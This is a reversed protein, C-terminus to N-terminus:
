NRQAAVIHLDVFEAHNLVYDIPNRTLLRAIFNGPPVPQGAVLQSVQLEEATRVITLGVHNKLPPRKILRAGFQECLKEIRELDRSEQDSLTDGFLVVLVYLEANLRDAIRWGRRILKESHPRYNVCVLIREREQPNRHASRDEAMRQDVDDAVELLALERLAALNATEFFHDLAWQIKDTSYIKGDILRQQLTEPVVDILRIERAQKVFWDPIRERVKVGTIHEVKDHLSEMHQINVATVVNIGHELLYLIDQYRKERPSGPVNTHALEDILVISPNRRIIADVDLEEYVRGEYEIRKKPIVELDGIQAATEQRGHTEILGIVVDWGRNKWDHADQLMKYTKGVGPAAGIYITLKGHSRAHEGHNRQTDRATRRRRSGRSQSYPVDKWGVIRLDTYRLNRLLYRVPNDKWVYKWKQEPVPQGIVIQTVNLRDSTELIVAGIQRDNLPELVWDAGYKEALEKLKERNERQKESLLNEATNAVTLAYLDAKMRMAMQRGRRLLKIARAYDSVCVMIVERVGVPGPIKRRSYSRQLRDDVDEAVVRLALERLASLNSKRFFNQLAQNVKDPPYIGGDRLRQRLTEPTVDIVAVEDARKIFSEPILERIRVGTIEEAEQHIGEIHQVNVATLVSIGQDLLYEVDMYRKPFMSGPANTHALEDIVVIDPDRKCIAEIDVEEFVRNQFVIRKRPLVELGDIQAATEPRGHVEVYGIVVDIGRERLSVAERLMTYTKGVGPAAGIFM